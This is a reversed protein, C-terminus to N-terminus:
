IAANANRVGLETLEGVAIAAMKAADNQSSDSLREDEVVTLCEQALRELKAASGSDTPPARRLAWARFM